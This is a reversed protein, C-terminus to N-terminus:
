PACTPPPAPAPAIVKTAGVNFGYTAVCTATTQDFEDVFKLEAAQPTWELSPEVGGDAGLFSVDWTPMQAPVGAELDGSDVLDALVDLGIPQLRMRFTVRDPMTPLPAMTRPFFQEVHTQYFRPDLQNFTVLSPITDAKVSAAQWFMHVAGGQDDFMQDRLLWLDPDNQLGVVPTGDAVVGSQYIVSGGAYAVVEAWARRDQAAGSPWDHGLFVPDVLVRVGGAQTVCVAGQLSSALFQQVAGREAAASAGSSDLHVDVAPFDHGHYRRVPAGQVIAIAGSTETMHCQVCTQGGAGVPADFASRSWECFTREIPANTRDVVIDHCAGCMSASALQDRDHLSSYSSAHAANPLADSYEARMALDGSLTLAANHTGDVSAVSHCFFCTVGRYKAPLGALNLGDTTKGDRVAMPAHCKVCFTGLQGGTERQGRQNMAVFVPDDGAYAHMSRSWDLYHTPHCGQCVAPDLLQDRSLAPTPQSGGNQGCGALAHIVLGLPLAALRARPRM